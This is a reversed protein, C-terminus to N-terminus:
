VTHPALWRLTEANPALATQGDHDDHEGLACGVIIRAMVDPAMTAERPVVSEEFYSRLLDTEVAGPAVAFARIKLDGRENHISRIMSEVAAKSAAYAFLGPYPDHAAMSSVNVVCGGGQRTFVPWACHTLWAASLANVTFSAALDDPTAAAIPGAPGGGANNILADLRAFRRDVADILSRCRDPRGVDTPIPLIECAPDADHCAAATSELPATRRGALALNWGARAFRVATAAGIGTGGGTIVAVPRTGDGDTM